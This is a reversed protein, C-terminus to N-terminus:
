KHETTWPLWVSFRTHGPESQCELLGEHQLVLTQAISLGLGTGNAKGSVLPLFVRDILEPEIGPGTDIIDLRLVRKHRKGGITAGHEVRSRLTLTGQQGMAEMANQILNFFVQHLADPNAPLDPLSPDYDRVINIGSARTMAQTQLVQELVSHVNIERQKQSHGPLLLRDVLERLRDAERQILDTFERQGDDALERALLQAAGRVGALPNKIEHALSRLLHHLDQQQRFRESEEQLRQSEELPKLELLCGNPLPSLSADIRQVATFPLPWPLRQAHCIRQQEICRAQMELLPHHSPLWRALPSNLLRKRSHGLLNEAAMNVAQIRGGPDLAIVAITLSDFLSETNM